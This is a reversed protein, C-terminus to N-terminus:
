IATVLHIDYKCTKLRIPDIPQIGIPGALHPDLEVDQPPFQFLNKVM